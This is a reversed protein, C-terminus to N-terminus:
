CDGSAPPLRRRSLTGPSRLYNTPSGSNGGLDWGLSGARTDMGSRDTPGSAGCPFGLCVDAPRGTAGFTQSEGALKCERADGDPEPRPELTMGTLVEVWNAVRDLDDPVDPPECFLRAKGDRCGTVVFRGDPSFAVANVPAPHRLPPGIPQGTAADWFQVGLQNGVAVVKGDARIAVSAIYSQSTLPQLLLMGSSVDWLRALDISSTLLSKGDSSLTSLEVDSPHLYPQGVRSRTALAWSQATTKDNNRVVVAKGDPSFALVSSAESPRFAAGFPTGTAADWRRVTGDDGGTLITKGDPSFAAASVGSQQELPGGIPRGSPIDWMRATKDKSATLALKGDPSFAVAQVSDNHGQRAPFLTQGTVADWLQVIGYSGGILITKGDPSFAASTCSSTVKLVLRTPQYPEVEWIRVASDGITTLLKGDPSFALQRVSAQHILPLGIPRGTVADGSDARDQGHQWDLLNRRRPSFTAFRVRTM